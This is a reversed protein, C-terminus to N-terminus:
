HSIVYTHFRSKRKCRSQNSSITFVTSLKRAGEVPQDASQFSQFSRRTHKGTIEKYSINNRNADTKHTKLCLFLSQAETHHLYKGKLVNSM